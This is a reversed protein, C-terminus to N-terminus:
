CIASLNIKLPLSVKSLKEKTMFDDQQIRNMEEDSLVLPRSLEDRIVATRWLANEGANDISMNFIADKVKLNKTIELKSRILRQNQSKQWRLQALQQELDLVRSNKSSRM